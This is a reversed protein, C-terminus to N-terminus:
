WIRNVMEWREDIEDRLQRYAVAGVTDRYKPSDIDMCDLTAEKLKVNIPIVTRMAFSAYRKLIADWLENGIKTKEKLVGSEDEGNPMLMTRFCGLVRLPPNEEKAKNITQVLQGFGLVSFPDSSEIPVIVRDAAYLANLTFAGLSSPCDIIIRNYKNEVRQLQESLMFLSLPRRKQRCVEEELFSTRIDNPVVDIGKWYIVGNETREARRIVHEINVSKDTFLDAVTLSDVSTNYTGTEYSSNGQSDMDVILDGPRAINTATKSKGVGGKQNAIALIQAM